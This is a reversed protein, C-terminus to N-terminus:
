TAPPKLAFATTYQEDLLFNAAGSRSLVIEHPAPRALLWELLDAALREIEAADFAAGPAVAAAAAADAAADASGGGLAVEIAARAAAAAAAAATTTPGWWQPAAPPPPLVVAPEPTTATFRFLRSEEAVFITVKREKNTSRARLAPDRARVGRADGM